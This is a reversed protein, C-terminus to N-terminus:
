RRRTKAPAAAAETRLLDAYRSLVGGLDPGKEEEDSSALARQAIADIHADMAAVVADVDGDDFRQILDTHEHISCENAQPRAHM